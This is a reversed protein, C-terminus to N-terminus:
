ESGSLKVEARVADLHQLNDESGLERESVERFWAVIKKALTEPQGSEKVARVIAKEVEEDIPM